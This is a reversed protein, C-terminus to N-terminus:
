TYAHTEQWSNFPNPLMCCNAEPLRCCNTYFWRNRCCNPFFAAVIARDFYRLVRGYLPHNPGSPTASHDLASLLKFHVKPDQIQINNLDLLQGAMRGPRPPYGPGDTYLYPIRQQHKVRLITSM